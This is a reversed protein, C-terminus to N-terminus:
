SVTEVINSNIIQKDITLVKANIRRALGVILRDHMEPVALDVKLELVDEPDMATLVFQSAQQLKAFDSSFDIPTGLKVNLYFLEALVIAPVHIVARGSEGESLVNILHASLRSSKILYWFLVHTDIVYDIM